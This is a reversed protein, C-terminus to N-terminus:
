VSCITPLTLHTYSVAELNTMDLNIKQLTALSEMKRDRLPSLKKNEEELLTNNLNLDIKIASIEDDQEGVKETIEDKNKEIQKM